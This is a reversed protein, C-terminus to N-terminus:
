AATKFDIVGNSTLSDMYRGGEEGTHRYGGGPVREIGPASYRDRSGYPRATAEARFEVTLRLDDKVGEHFRIPGALEYNNKDLEATIKHMLQTFVIPTVVVSQDRLTKPDVQVSAGVTKM